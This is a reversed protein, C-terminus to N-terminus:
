KGEEKHIIGYEYGDITLAEKFEFMLHNDVKVVYGSCLWNSAFPVYNRRDGPFVTAHDKTRCYCIWKDENTKCKSFIKEHGKLDYSNNTFELLLKAPYNDIADKPELEVHVKYVGDEIFCKGVVLKSVKTPKSAYTKNPKALKLGFGKLIKTM